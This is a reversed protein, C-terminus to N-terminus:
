LCLLWVYVVCVAIIMLIWTLDSIEEKNSM